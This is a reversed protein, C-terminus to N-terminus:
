AAKPQREARASTCNNCCGSGRFGRSSGAYDHSSDFLGLCRMCGFHLSLGPPLAKPWLVSQAQSGQIGMHDAAYAHVVARLSICTQFAGGKPPFALLLQVKQRQRFRQQAQRNQKQKRIDPGGLLSGSARRPLTETATQSTSPEVAAPAAAIAERMEADAAESGALSSASDMFQELGGLVDQSFDWSPLEDPFDHRLSTLSYTTPLQPQM